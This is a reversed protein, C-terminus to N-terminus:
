FRNMAFSNANSNRLKFVRILNTDLFTHELRIWRKHKRAYNNKMRFIFHLVEMPTKTWLLLQCAVREKSDIKQENAFLVNHTMYLMNTNSRLFVITHLIHTHTHKMKCMESQNWLTNLKITTHIILLSIFFM